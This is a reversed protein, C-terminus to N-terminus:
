LGTQGAAKGPVDPDHAGVLRRDEVAIAQVTAIHHRREVRHRYQELAAVHAADFRRDVVLRPPSWQHHLRPAALAPELGMGLDLRRVITGLVQTIIMPGGAAGVTLVPACRKLRDATPPERQPGVAGGDDPRSSLIITPSMSSLPRKGPAIANAAAGVLGFANPTGPAISFDDMENNLVVGTGPVIVKSGFQTNITATIAVWNGDGDAAAIHTTHRGFLDTQWRPPMGHGAVPTAQDLDITRALDAAYRKDTLGRPVAAFDADGLWFARDAFARKMAEALLHQCRVPDAQFISRVDFRELINLIQAVHVGGSSPPPFGVVIWQRYTTVLPQRVRPKYDAFDAATLLGGNEAMWRGVRDAFAGRYFWDPGHQAIARYTRALDGQKLTETERYPSGDAKLLVRRTGPFRALDAAKEALSAALIRDVPFGEAAITAAPLLLEDLPLRGHREIALAYAALAGPVGSALPGTQSLAMEPRGARIFM